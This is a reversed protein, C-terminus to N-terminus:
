NKCNRIKWGVIHTFILITTYIQTLTIVTLDNPFLVIGATQKLYLQLLVHIQFKITNIAKLIQSQSQIFFIFTCPLLKGMERAVPLVVINHLVGASLAVKGWYYTKRKPTSLIYQFKGNYSFEKGIFCEYVCTLRYVLACCLSVSM